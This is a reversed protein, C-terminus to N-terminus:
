YKWLPTCRFCLCRFGLSCPTLGLHNGDSRDDRGELFGKHRRRRLYSRYHFCDDDCPAAADADADANAFIVIMDVRKVIDEIRTATDVLTDVVRAKVM